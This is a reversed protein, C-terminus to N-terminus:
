KGEKQLYQQLTESDGTSYSSVTVEIYKSVTKLEELSLFEGDPLCYMHEHSLSYGEQRPGVVSSISMTTSSFYCNKNEYMASISQEMHTNFIKQLEENNMWDDYSMRGDFAIALAEDDYSSNSTTFDSKDVLTYYTFEVDQHPSLNTPYIMGFGKTKWGIESFIGTVALMILFIIFIRPRIVIRRRYIFSATVYLCLLILLYLIAGTMGETEYSSTVFLLGLFLMIHIVFPWALPSDSLQEAREAKRGILQKQNLCFALVGYGLVLAEFLWSFHQSGVGFVADPDILCSANIFGSYLPSLWQAIIMSDASVSGVTISRIFVSWAFQIIFPLLTYAGLMIFGDLINNASMYLLSNLLLLVAILLAMHALLALMGAFYQILGPTMWLGCAGASLISLAFSGMIAAYMVIFETQIQARRSIPLSLFLDVSRKRHLYSFMFVPLVYCSLIAILVAVIMAARVNFRTMRLADDLGATYAYQRSGLLVSSAPIMVFMVVYFLWGPKWRKYLYSAYHKNM